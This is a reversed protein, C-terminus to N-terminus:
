ALEDLIGEEKALTTLGRSVLEVDDVQLAEAARALRADDTSLRSLARRLDTEISPGYAAIAARRAALPVPGVKVRLIALDILDRDFQSPDAGRDSLALLKEAYVDDVALCPISQEPLADPPGFVIRAERVLEVKISAGGSVVPFRIGYQDITPERPLTFGGQSRFLVAAGHERVAGRLRAYGAADSCLFDLDRSIRTEGWALAIRTAGGFLFGTARLLDSDFSSLVPRMRAYPERRFM